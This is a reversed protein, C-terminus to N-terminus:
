SSTYQIDDAMAAMTGPLQEQGQRTAKRCAPYIHRPQAAVHCSSRPATHKWPALCNMVMELFVHRADNSPGIKFFAHGQRFAQSVCADASACRHHGVLSLPKTKTKQEHDRHSLGAMFTAHRHNGREASISIIKRTCLFHMFEPAFFNLMSQQVGIAM